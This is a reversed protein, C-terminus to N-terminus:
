QAKISFRHNRYSLIVGEPTIEELYLEETVNYGETMIRGNISVLPSDKKYLHSSIRIKPLSSKVTAPLENIDVVGQLKQPENNAESMTKAYAKEVVTRQKPETSPKEYVITNHDTKQKQELSRKVTETDILTKGDKEENSETKIHEQKLATKEPEKKLKDSVKIAGASPQDHKGSSSTLLANNQREPLVTYNSWFFLGASIVFIGPLLYLFKQPIKFGRSSFESARMHEPESETQPTHEAKKMQELIALEIQRKKGSKKLQDLLFSM